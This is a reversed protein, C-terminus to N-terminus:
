ANLMLIFLSSLIFTLLANRYQLLQFYKANRNVGYAFLVWSMRPNSPLLVGYVSSRLIVKRMQLKGCEFTKYERSM